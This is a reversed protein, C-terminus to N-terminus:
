LFSYEVDKFNEGIRPYLDIEIGRKALEEVSLSNPLHNGTLSKYAAWFGGFFEDVMPANTGDPNVKYDLLEEPSLNQLEVQSELLRSLNGVDVAVFVNEHEQIKNRRDNGIIADIIEDAKPTAKGIYSIGLNLGDRLGRCIFSPKKNLEFLVKKLHSEEEYESEAQWFSEYLVDSLGLSMDTCCDNMGTINASSMWGGGIGDYFSPAHPNDRPRRKLIIKNDGSLVYCTVGLGNVGREPAFSKGEYIAEIAGLHQSYNSIDAPIIVKGDRTYNISKGAPVISDKWNARKELWNSRAYGEIKGNFRFPRKTPSVTLERGLLDYIEIKM